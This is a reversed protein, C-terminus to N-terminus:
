LLVRVTTIPGRVDRSRLTPTGRVFSSDRAYVRLRVLYYEM